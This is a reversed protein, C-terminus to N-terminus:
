KKWTYVGAEDLPPQDFDTMKQKPAPKLGAREVIIRVLQGHYPMDEREIVTGGEPTYYVHVIVDDKLSADNQKVEVELRRIHAWDWVRRMGWFRLPNYLILAEDTIQYRMAIDLMNAYLMLVGWITFIWAMAEVFFVDTFGMFFASLGAILLAMSGTISRQPGKFELPETTSTQATSTQAAAQATQAM